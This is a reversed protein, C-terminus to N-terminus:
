GAGVGPVTGSLAAVSGDNSLKEVRLVKNEPLVDRAECGDAAVALLWSGVTVDVNIGILEAGDSRLLLAADSKNM